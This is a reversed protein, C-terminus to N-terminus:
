KADPALPMVEPFSDTDPWVRLAVRYARWAKQTGIGTEGDQVRNLMIDARTLEGDRLTRAEKCAAEVLDEETPQDPTELMLSVVWKGGIFRCDQTKYHFEPPAEQTSCAPIHYVGPELPSEFADTIGTFKLTNQDYGYVIM